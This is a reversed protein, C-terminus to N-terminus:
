NQVKKCIFQGVSYTFVQVLIDILKQPKFKSNILFYGSILVYVNVSVIAFGNWVSDLFWPATFAQANDTVGGSGLFYLTVVMLMSLVRLLEINAMRMATGNSTQAKKM